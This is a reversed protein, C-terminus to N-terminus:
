KSVANKKTRTLLRIPIRGIKGPPALTVPFMAMVNTNANHVKRKVLM